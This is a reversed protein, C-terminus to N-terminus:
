SIYGFTDEKSEKQKSIKGSHEIITKIKKEFKEAKELLPKFDVKLGLYNDLIEIIKAAAKADPLNSYSEAFIFSTNKQKSLISATVGM